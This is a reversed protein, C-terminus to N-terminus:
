HHSGAHAHIPEAPKAPKHEIAARLAEALHPYKFVYGLALAKAPIARQGTTIATAVEGVMLRLLADPPGFPLYVRWPTFRSRLVSSFTRAFDANRVPEPATGNMPGRAGQNELALRFLGVIDDIHIWSMWQNGQAVFKGGAGIPAGPLLKFVPTMVKLAGAGPALVIGTRVLVRRVGLQDLGSSAEECERCIVALLDSGSSGSEDLEEDGRPGYYGIASGQVFIKPRDHAKKIAFSLQEASHVRSDRLSRKIDSTWRDAFINHGALNVVADSGDVEDQWRGSTSPDGPIVRFPWMERRRRVADANRSLLVPEHGDDLLSKALGFGILGSGGAIFVRMKSM